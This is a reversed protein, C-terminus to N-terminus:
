RVPAPGIYVLEEFRTGDAAHFTVPGACTWGCSEYLAIAATFGTVVDLAPRRGLNAAAETAVALLARGTGVRRGQPAVFLRAVFALEDAECGAAERARAVVPPSSTAHLAAHGVIDGDREAVWAAVADPSDLFERLSGPLYGPYGDLTHV